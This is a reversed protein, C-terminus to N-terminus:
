IRNWGRGNCWKCYDGKYSPCMPCSRFHSQRFLAMAHSCELCSWIVYKNSVSSITIDHTFCVGNCKPCRVPGDFVARGANIHTWRQALDNDIISM